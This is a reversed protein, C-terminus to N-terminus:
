SGTWELIKSERKVYDNQNPSVENLLLRWDKDLKLDGNCSGCALVRNSIHNRGGKSGPILHDIHGERKQSSLLAGCFACTSEFFNWIRKREAKSIDPDILQQFGARIYRQVQPATLTPM